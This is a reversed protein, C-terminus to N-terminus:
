TIMGFVDNLMDQIELLDSDTLLFIAHISFDTDRFNSNDIGLSVVQTNHLCHLGIPKSLFSFEIQDFYRWVGVRWNGSNHIEALEQILLGLFLAFSTFRLLLDFDFFDLQARFRVFMVRLELHSIRATPEFIAVFDLHTDPEPSSFDRIWFDCHFLKLVNDIFKSIDCNYFM